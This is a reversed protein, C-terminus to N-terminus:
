QKEEWEERQVRVENWICIIIRRMLRKVKTM